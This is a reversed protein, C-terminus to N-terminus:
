QESREHGNSVSVLVVVVIVIVIVIVIVDDIILFVRCSHAWQKQIHEPTASMCMEAAAAAADAAHHWEREREKRSRAFNGM